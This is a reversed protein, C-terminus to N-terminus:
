SSDPKHPITAPNKLNRTNTETGCRSHQVTNALESVMEGTQSPRLSPLVAFIAKKLCVRQARLQHLQTNYTKVLQVLSWLACDYQDHNYLEFM